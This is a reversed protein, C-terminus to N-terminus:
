VMLTFKNEKRLINKKGGAQEVYFLIYIEIASSM